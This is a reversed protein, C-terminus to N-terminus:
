TAVRAMGQEGLVSVRTKLVSAIMPNRVPRRMVEVGAPLSLQSAFLKDGVELGGIDVSIFDPITDGCCRCRLEPSAVNLM